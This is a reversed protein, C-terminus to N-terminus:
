INWVVQAGLLDISTHQHGSVTAFTVPNIGNIHVTKVFVHGYIVDFAIKRNMQYRTGINFGLKPGDPFSVDRFASQTPTPEYKISGRLMWQDNLKYHTGVSVDVTNSYNEQLVVNPLIGSPNTPTPPQIYNRAHYDRLVNWQDYALTGMLAWNCTIDRYVSLTTTPPLPVPLKFSNSEFSAVHNLAFDSYGDLNMMLKSRYNLGIRTADNWQFLVGIHGGYGWRNASFRSISDGPTGFPPTGETRVHNRSEVSFYHFDPGIGISWQKNIRMAISPAVDVTRTYVKTLNYRVMSNEGYDEMFGWAPVVSIGLSFCHNIPYTYHFAPLFSNPHSSASGSQIFSSGVSPPPLLAPAFATGGFTTPAYLDIGSAVLQQPLNVLGAANYWNTGADEVVAAEGADALVSASQFEMKYGAAYAQASLLMMLGLSSLRWVSKNTLRKSITTM